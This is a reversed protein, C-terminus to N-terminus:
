GLVVLSCFSIIKRCLHSSVSQSIVIIMQFNTSNRSHTQKSDWILREDTWNRFAASNAPSLWFGDTKTAPLWLWDAVKKDSPIHEISKFNHRSFNFHWFRLKITTFFKSCKKQQRLCAARRIFELIVVVTKGLTM